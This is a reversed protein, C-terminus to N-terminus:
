VICGLKWDDRRIFERLISRVFAGRTCSKNESEIFEDIRQIEEEEIRVTLMKKKM